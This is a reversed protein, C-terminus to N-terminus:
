VEKEKLRFWAVALLVVNVVTAAIAFFTISGKEGKFFLMGNNATRYNELNFGKILLYIFLFYGIVIISFTFLSKILPSKNFHSAGTFAAIFVFLGGQLFAIKKWGSMPYDTLVQSFSFKYNVLSPFYYHIISGEINAIIWYLLPMLIIFGIVRTLLEFIYKELTSVPLTLYTISKEKSRFAPFSSSAYIAGLAFFFFMFTGLYSQNTWYKFDSMSQFFILLLFLTGSIGAMSIGITKKNVRWSQKVLMM